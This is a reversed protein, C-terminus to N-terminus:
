FWCFKANNDWIVDDATYGLPPRVASLSSNKAYVKSGHELETILRFLTPFQKITIEEDWFVLKKLQASKAEAIAHALLERLAEQRNEKSKATDIFVKIVILTDENWHHHWIVHSNDRLAFGFKLGNNIRNSKEMIFLDRIAFWKYIDIDPAVTFIFAKPNERHLEQLHSQFQKKQLEVLDEYDDLGLYRGEEQIENNCYREFFDDLQTIIHLPVHMSRYGTKAYYEGIESYLNIVMHRLLAPANPDDRASDFYKNLSEIMIRACGKGRHEPMTFVAGICVVLTLEVKGNSDPHICYGLRGLTECSSVIQSTKGEKPLNEDKCIFYKLGLWRHFGPFQEKMETSQGKLGIGSNGLLHERDAYEERTQLGKWIVGNKLHTYRIVEPDTNEEFKLNKYTPAITM